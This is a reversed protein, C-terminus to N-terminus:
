NVGNTAFVSGSEQQWNEVCSFGVSNLCILLNRRRPLIPLARSQWKGELNVYTSLPLLPQPQQPTASLWAFCKAWGGHRRRREATWIHLEAVQLICMHHIEIRFRAFKPALSEPPLLTWAQVLESGMRTPWFTFDKAFIHGVYARYGVDTPTALRAAKQTLRLCVQHCSWPLRWRFPFGLLCNQNTQRQSSNGSRKWRGGKELLLIIAPEHSELGARTGKTQWGAVLLCDNAAPTSSSQRLAACIPISPCSLLARIRPLFHEFQLVRFAQVGPSRNNARPGSVPPLMPWLVIGALRSRWPQV